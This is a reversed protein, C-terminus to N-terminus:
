ELRPVLPDFPVPPPPLRAVTDLIVSPVSGSSSTLRATREAVFLDESPATQEPLPPPPSVPANSGHFAPHTVIPSAPPRCGAGCRRTHTYLDVEPDHSCHSVTIAQKLHCHYPYDLDFVFGVCKANSLCISKCEEVAGAAGMDERTGTDVPLSKTGDGSQCSRSAHRVWNSPSPPPLPARAQLRKRVGPNHRLLQLEWPQPRHWEPHGTLAITCQHEASLVARTSAERLGFDSYCVALVRRFIASLECM